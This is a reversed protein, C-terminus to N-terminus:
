ESTSYSLSQSRKLFDSFLTLEILRLFSCKLLNKDIQLSVRSCCEIGFLVLLCDHLAGSGICTASVIVSRISGGDTM